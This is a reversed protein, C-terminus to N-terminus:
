IADMAYQLNLELFDYENASKDPLAINDVDMCAIYKGKAKKLMYKIYFVIWKKDNHLICFCTRIMPQVMIAFLLSLIRILKIFISNISLEVQDKNPSNHRGMIVLIM